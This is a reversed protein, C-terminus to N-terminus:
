PKEIYTASSHPGAQAQGQGPQPQAPEFIPDFFRHSDPVFNYPNRFYGVVEDPAKSFDAEGKANQTPANDPVPYAASPSAEEPAPSSQPTPSPTAQPTPSAKPQPIPTPEPVLAASKEPEPAKQGNIVKAAIPLDPASRHACDIAPEGYRM